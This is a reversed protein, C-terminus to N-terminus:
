VRITESRKGAFSGEEFVDSEFIEALLRVCSRIVVKPFYDRHMNGFYALHDHNKPPLFMKTHNKSEMPRGVGTYFNIALNHTLRPVVITTKEVSLTIHAEGNMEATQCCQIEIKEVFTVMGDGVKGAIGSTEIVSRTLHDAAVSM